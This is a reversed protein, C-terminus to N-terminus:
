SGDTLITFSTQIWKEEIEKKKKRVYFCCNLLLLSNLKCINIELISLWKEREKGCNTIVDLM